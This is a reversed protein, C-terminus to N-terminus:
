VSGRHGPRPSILRVLGHVSSQGDPRTAPQRANDLVGVESRGANRAMTGGPARRSARARTVDGAAENERAYHISLDM